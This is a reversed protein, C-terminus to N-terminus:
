ASIAAFRNGRDFARAGRIAASTETVRGQQRSLSLFM